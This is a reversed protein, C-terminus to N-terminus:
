DYRVESPNTPLFPFFPSVPTSWQYDIPTQVWDESGFRGTKLFRAPDRSQIHILDGAEVKSFTDNQKTKAKRKLVAQVMHEGDCIYRIGTRNKKRLKSLVRWSGPDYNLPKRMFMFGVFHHRSNLRAAKSSIRQILPITFRNIHFHCWNNEQMPCQFNAVCPFGIEWKERIMRDRVPLIHHFSNRTGARYPGFLWCCYRGVM